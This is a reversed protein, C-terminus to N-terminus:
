EIQLYEKIFKAIDKWKKTKIRWIIDWKDNAKKRNDFMETLKEWFDSIAIIKCNMWIKLYEKLFPDWLPAKRWDFYNDLLIIDWNKIKKIYPLPNKIDKKIPYTYKPFTEKLDNYIEKWHLDDFIRIRM